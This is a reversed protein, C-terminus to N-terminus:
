GGEAEEGAFLGGGRKLDKLTEADKVVARQELTMLGSLICIREVYHWNGEGDWQPYDHVVAQVIRAETPSKWRQEGTM